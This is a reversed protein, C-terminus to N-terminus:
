TFCAFLENLDAIFNLTVVPSLLLSFSPMGNNWCFISFFIRLLVDIFLTLSDSFIDNLDGLDCCEINWLVVCNGDTLM